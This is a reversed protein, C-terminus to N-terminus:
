TPHGVGVKTSFILANTETYSDVSSNLMVTIASSKTTMSKMNKM